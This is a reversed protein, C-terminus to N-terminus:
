GDLEHHSLLLRVASADRPNVVPRAGEARDLEAREATRRSSGRAPTAPRGRSKSTWRPGARRSGCAIICTPGELFRNGSVRARPSAPPLESISIKPIAWVIVIWTRPRPV